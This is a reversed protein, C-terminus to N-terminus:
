PWRRGSPQRAQQRHHRQELRDVIEARLGAIRRANRAADRHRAAAQARRRASPPRDGLGAPSPRSCRCCCPRRCGQWGTTATDRPLPARGRRGRLRRERGTGARGRRCSSGRRRAPADTRSPSGDTPGSRRGARSPAPRPSRASTRSGDSPPRCGPAARRPRRGRSAARGADSRLGARARAWSPSARRVFGAAGVVTQPM